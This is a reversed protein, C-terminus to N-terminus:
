TAPPSSRAPRRQALPRRQAAPQFRGASQQHAVAVAAHADRQAMRQGIRFRGRSQRRGRTRRQVIEGAMPVAQPIRSSQMAPLDDAAAQHFARDLFAHVQAELPGSRAPSGLPHSRKHFQERQRVRHLPVLIPLREGGSAWNPLCVRQFDHERVEAIAPVGEIRVQLVLPHPISPLKRATRLPRPEDHDPLPPDHLPRMRPQPRTPQQRPIV